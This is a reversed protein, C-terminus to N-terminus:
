RVGVAREEEPIQRRWEDVDGQMRQVLEQFRPDDRVRDFMPDIAILGPFRYGREEYGRTAWRIAEDTDGRAAYISAIEWVEHWTESRELMELVQEEATDLVALGLESEGAGLLSMGLMATSFHTRFGYGEPDLQVAEQALPVARDFDRAFLAAAM